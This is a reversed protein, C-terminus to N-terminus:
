CFTAGLENGKNRSIYFMQKRFKSSSVQKTRQNSGDVFVNSSGFLMTKIKVLIFVLLTFHFTGLM